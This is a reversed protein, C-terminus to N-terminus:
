VYAATTGPFVDAPSFERIPQDVDQAMLPSAYLLAAAICGALFSLFQLQHQPRSRM